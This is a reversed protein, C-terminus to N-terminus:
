NYIFYPVLYIAIISVIINTNLNQNVLYSSLLCSLVMMCSDSIIASFSVESAYEKFTDLMRNTGKPVFSFFLYFLIDHIIQVIVSLIIFKKLDFEKFISFYIKRTIILGILIIFVDAIVASLNYNNYWKKLVKSQIFSLNLLLIVILDTILVGNFLPLYDSVNNFDSINKYM